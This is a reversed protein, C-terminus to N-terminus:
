ELATKLDFSFLSVLMLKTNKRSLIPKQQNVLYTEELSDYIDIQKASVNICTSYWHTNNENIPIFVSDLTTLCLDRQLASHGSNLGFFWSFSVLACHCWKMATEELEPSLVGNNARICLDEQFLIKCAFFTNLGLTNMRSCWKKVFYNIVEDDLWRVIGLTKFNRLSVHQITSFTNPRRQWALIM